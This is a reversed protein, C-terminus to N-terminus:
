DHFVDEWKVLSSCEPSGKITDGLSRYRIQKGCRCKVALRCMKLSYLFYFSRRPVFHVRTNRAVVKLRFITQHANGVSSEFTYVLLVGCLFYRSM